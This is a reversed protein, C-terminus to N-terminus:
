SVNVGNRDGGEPAGPCRDHSRRQRSGGAEGPRLGGPEPRDRRRESRQCTANRPTWFYGRESARKGNERQEDRSESQAKRRREDWVQSSGTEKERSGALDRGAQSEM